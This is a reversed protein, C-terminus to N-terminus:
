VGACTAVEYKERWDFIVSPAIHVGAILSLKYAAAENTLGEDYLDSAKDIIEWAYRSGKPAYHEQNDNNFFRGCDFCHMVHVTFLVIRQIGYLTRQKKSHRGNTDSGCYPCKM